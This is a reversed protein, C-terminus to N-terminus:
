HLESDTPTAISVLRPSFCAAISASTRLAALVQSSCTARISGASDSARRLSASCYSVPNQVPQRSGSYEASESWGERDGSRNLSALRDALGGPPSGIVRRTPRGQSPHANEETQGTRPRGPTREARPGQLPRVPPVVLRVALHVGLLQEQVDHPQP